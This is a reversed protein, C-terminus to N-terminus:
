NGPELRDRQRQLVPPTRKTLLIDHAFYCEPPFFQMQINVNKLARGEEWGFIAFFFTDTEEQNICNELTQGINNGFCGLGGGLRDRHVPPGECLFYLDM